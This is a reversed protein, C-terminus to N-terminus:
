KFRACPRRALFRKALEAELQRAMESSGEAQSAEFAFAQAAAQDCQADLERNGSPGALSQTQQLWGPAELLM